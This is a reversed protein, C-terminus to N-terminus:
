SVLGAYGWSLTSRRRKTNSVDVGERVVKGWRMLYRKGVFTYPSVRYNAHQDLRKVWVTFDNDIEVVLYLLSYVYFRDAGSLDHYKGFYKRWGDLQDIDGHLWRLYDKRPFEKSRLCRIVQGEKIEEIM